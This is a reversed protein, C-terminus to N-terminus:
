VATDLHTHGGTRSLHPRHLTHAPALRYRPHRRREGHIDAGDHPEIGGDGPGRQKPARITHARAIVALAPPSTRTRSSTMASINPSAPGPLLSILPHLSWSAARRSCPGM